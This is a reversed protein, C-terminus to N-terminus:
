LLLKKGYNTLIWKDKVKNAIIKPKSINDFNWIVGQPIDLLRYWIYKTYKYLDYLRKVSTLSEKMNKVYFYHLKTKNTINKIQADDLEIHYLVCCDM